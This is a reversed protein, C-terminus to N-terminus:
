AEIHKPEIDHLEESSYVYSKPFDRQRTFSMFDNLIDRYVTLAQPPVMLHIIFLLLM